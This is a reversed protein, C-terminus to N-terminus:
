DDEGLLIRAAKAGGDRLIVASGARQFLSTVLISGLRNCFAPGSQVKCSDTLRDRSRAKAATQRAYQIIRAAANRAFRAFVRLFRPFQPCMKGPVDGARWDVAPSLTFLGLLERNFIWRRRRGRRLHVM